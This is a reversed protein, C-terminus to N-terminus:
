GRGEGLPLPTPPSPSNKRNLSIWEAAGIVGVVQMWRPEARPNRMLRMGVTRMVAQSALNDHETTAVIRALRLEDFAYAIMARAAESAYGQRQQQPDIAWFMGFETTYHESTYTFGPLAGFPMLMPVFGVSGIVTGSSKLVIARDGYPPQHLAALQEDNLASWLLWTRREDLTVNTVFAENLIRHIAALDDMAFARVLLRETELVPMTM